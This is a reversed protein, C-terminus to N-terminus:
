PAKFKKELKRSCFLISPLSSYHYFTSAVKCGFRLTIEAPLLQTLLHLSIIHTIM